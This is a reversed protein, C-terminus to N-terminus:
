FDVMLRSNFSFRQGGLRFEGTDPGFHYAGGVEVKLDEWHTFRASFRTLASRDTLNALNLWTFTVNNWTGPNQAYVTFAGYERSLLFPQYAGAALVFAYESTSGYGLPDRTYEVGFSLTDTDWVSLDYNL